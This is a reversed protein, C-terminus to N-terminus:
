TDYPRLHGKIEPFREVMREVWAKIEVATDEWVEKAIVPNCNLLSRLINLKAREILAFRDSATEMINQLEAQSWKSTYYVHNETGPVPSNILEPLILELWIAWQPNSDGLGVDILRTYAKGLTIEAENPPITTDAIRYSDCIITGDELELAPCTAKSGKRTSLSTSVEVNTLEITQFPIHKHLLSLRIK